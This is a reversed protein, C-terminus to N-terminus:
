RNIYANVYDPRLRLAEDLDPLASVYDQKKMFAYARNNYAGAFDPKLQIARAYDAIARDYDGLEFYYDGRALYDSATNLSAPLTAARKPAVTQLRSQRFFGVGVLWVVAVVLPIVTAAILWRRKAARKQPDSKYWRKTM